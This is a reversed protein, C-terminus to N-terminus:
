QGKGFLSPSPEEHVIRGDPFIINVAKGRKRAQRVTFWTGSRIEEKFEKPTALLEDSQDVIDVNRVLYDKAPHWYHGGLCFARKATVKPPHIHVSVELLCTLVLHHFEADAGICDGHHVAKPSCGELFFIVSEKQEPTMGVQTGTFGLSQM